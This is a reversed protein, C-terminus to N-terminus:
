QERPGQRYAVRSWSRCRASLLLPIQFGAVALNLNPGRPEFCALVGLTFMIEFAFQAAPIAQDCPAAAGDPM